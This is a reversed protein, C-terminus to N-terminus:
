LLFLAIAILAGLFFLVPYLWIMPKDIRHALELRGDTELRKLSVNYIVVIVSVVFAGILLADMFTLYGIRPLNDAVTFNFAVFTLLTASSVEVRRGFDRLFFTFWSVIIV